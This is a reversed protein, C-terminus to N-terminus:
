YEGGAKRAQYAQIKSAPLQDPPMPLTFEEDLTKIFEKLANKEEGTLKLSDRSLTQNTVLLGKGTGGGSNYFDIVEDMTTFVGNHMYPKTFGSNRISGTRFAHMTEAAPNIKDRGSDSSLKEFSTDSPVGLVEFESSIYPPKVGNFQPVFHCTACQAKSMFLNFGKISENSIAGQGNMANDFPASFDSFGTYYLSLASVIHDMSVEPHVPTLKAFKQFAKKYTACSMVNELIKQGNSGMEKPNIIVEKGQAQLSTHAGDLMLLHNYVVNVLSPTNRDLHAVRNFDLSTSAATDTFYESPKHCSACSRKGNGSLIPDFFLLRGIGTIEKLKETDNVAIFVGKRNQGTYLNKNFLSSNSNNLSYDNYSKSVVHYTKILRQNIAFLPNVYDKIFHFHDFEEPNRSQGSVFIEMQSYLSLYADRLSYDPFSSDFADYIGGVSKLMSQLEPIINKQGPCEFGTTYIAGLNLLFLRNAFFFHDPKLLFVTISDARFTQIARESEYLLKLLTDKKVEPEDLYLEALTLGAGIRKYPKEFKEFVETEWEVPLPGNIKKYAVPELYRLWFDIAKLEIRTTEIQLKLLQINEGTIEEEEKVSEILIHQQLVFADVGSKYCDIYDSHQNTFALNALMMASIFAVAIYRSHAM